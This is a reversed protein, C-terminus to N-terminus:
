YTPNSIAHTVQRADEIAMCVYMHAYIYMSNAYIWMCIYFYSYYLPKWLVSARCRTLMHNERSNRVSLPVAFIHPLLLNPIHMIKKANPLAILDHTPLHTDNFAAIPCFQPMNYRYAYLFFMTHMHKDADAWFISVIITVSIHQQPQTWIRELHHNM